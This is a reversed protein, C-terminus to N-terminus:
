NRSPWSNRGYIKRFMIVGVAFSSVTLYPTPQEINRPLMMGFCGISVNFTAVLNYAFKHEWGNRKILTILHMVIGVTIAFSITTIWTWVFQM